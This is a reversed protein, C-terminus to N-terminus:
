SSYAEVNANTGQEREGLLYSSLALALPLTGYGSAGTLMLAHPMRGDEVMKLLRAVTEEQGIIESFKM